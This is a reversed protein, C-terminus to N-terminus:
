VITLQLTYLHCKGNPHKLIDEEHMCIHLCMVSSMLVSIFIKGKCVLKCAIM